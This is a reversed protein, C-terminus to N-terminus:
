LRLLRGLRSSPKARHTLGALWQCEAWWIRSIMGTTEGSNIRL